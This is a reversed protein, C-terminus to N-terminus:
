VYFFYYLSYEFLTTNKFDPFDMNSKINKTPMTLKAQVKSKQRLHTNM